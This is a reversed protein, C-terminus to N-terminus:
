LPTINVTECTDLGFRTTFLELSVRYNQGITLGPFSGSVPSSPNTFTQSTIISGNGTRLIVYYTAGITPTPTFGFDIATGDPTVTLEPCRTISNPINVSTIKTCTVEGNTICNLVTVTYEDTYENLSSNLGTIVFPTNSAVLNPINPPFTGLTAGVNDTITVSTYQDCCDCFADQYFGAPITTFGDFTLTLTDNGDTFSYDFDLIFDNCLPSITTTTTTTTPAITTTTTTTTPAITTTTTTTTNGPIVSIINSYLTVGNCLMSVRIYRTSATNLTLIYSTQNCGDPITQGFSFPLFNSYESYDASVYTCLTSGNLDYDLTINGFGDSTASNLTPTACAITTTTTTTPAITTTTTTTSTSSTTTTTTPTVTTTTTTTTPVITTSTTTTPEVTTSTTTTTPSCSSVLQCFYALLVPDNAITQILQAAFQDSCIKSDIKQLAVTLTDCNQIGTCSLNDGQYEVHDSDIIRNAYPDCTPPYVVRVLPGFCPM